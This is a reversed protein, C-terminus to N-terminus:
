PNRMGREEALRESRLKPRPLQTEVAFDPGRGYFGACVAIYHARELVVAGICNRRARIFGNRHLERLQSAPQRYGTLTVIEEHSLLLSEIAPRVAESPRPSVEVPRTAGVTM